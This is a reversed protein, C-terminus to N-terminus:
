RGHAWDREVRALVGFRRLDNTAFSHAFCSIFSPHLIFALAVFFRPDRFSV